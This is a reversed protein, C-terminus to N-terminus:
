HNHDFSNYINAFEDTTVHQTVPTIEARIQTLVKQSVVEQGLKTYNEKTHEKAMEAITNILEPNNQVYQQYTGMLQQFGKQQIEKDTVNISYNKGIENIILDWRINKEIMSYQEEIKEATLEKNTKLLFEKLFAEPINVATNELLQDQIQHEKLHNNQSVYYKQIDEKLATRFEEDTTIELHPFIKAFLEANLEPPTTHYIKQIEFAFDGALDNLFEQPKGTLLRLGKESDEMLEKIDFHVITGVSAQLFHPKVTESIKDIPLHTQMYFSTSDQNTEDMVRNEELSYDHLTDYLVGTIIDKDSVFETPELKGQERLIREIQNDVTTDDVVVEYDKVYLKSFDYQFPPVIGCKFTFNFTEPRKLDVPEAPEIALPSGLINIEKHETLYNQITDQLVENLQEALVDKGMMQQVLQAPVKGPRFGKISVQKGLEKLKKDVRPQVDAQELKITLIGETPAPTEFQITM